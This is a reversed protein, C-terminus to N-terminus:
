PSTKFVPTGTLVPFPGTLARVSSGRLSIFITPVSPDTAGDFFASHPLEILDPTSNVNTADLLPIWTHGGDRSFVFGGPFVTAVRIQPDAIDFAVEELPCGHTFFATATGVPFSGTLNYPGRGPQSSGCNFRYEGGNTASQTLTPEVSWTSGCNRSVKINQAAEDVAYLENPDYPNVAFNWVSGLTAGPGNLLQFSSLLGTAPSTEGRELQGKSTMVFIVLVPVQSATGVPFCLSNGQVTGALIKAVTGAPFPQAALLSSSELSVWSGSSGMSPNVTANRVIVDQTANLAPGSEVSLYVASVPHQGPVSMVQTFDGTGPQEFEAKPPPTPTINLFTGSPGPPNAKVHFNDNRGIVVQTPLQPDIWAQGADGDLDKLPSWAAGGQTGIWADNDGTPVYLLPGPAGIGSAKVAAMGSVGAMINAEMAHLGSQAAVWRNVRSCPLGESGVNAFVGGDDSAFATCIGNSPDYDSPFAMAWTDVHIPDSCGTSTGGGLQQWTGGAGGAAAQFWWWICGDAAYVDYNVGPVEKPVPAGVRPTYVNAQGSGATNSVAAFNLNTTTGTNFDVITVERPKNDAPAHVVAVSSSVSSGQASPVVSLGLCLDPLTVPPEWSQGSTLSRRVTSGQCAFLGGQGPAAALIAQQGNFTTQPLKTWTAQELDKDTTSFIGCRTSVFPTGQSFVVSGITIENSTLTSTASCSLGCFAHEWTGASNDSVWLGGFPNGPRGDDDGTAYLLRSPNTDDLALATHNQTLGTKLGISSHFWSEGNNVSKWIGSSEGAAYLTSQLNASASINPDIALSLIRGGPDVGGPPNGYPFNPSVDTITFVLPRKITIEIFAPGGAQDTLTSLCQNSDGNDHSYYGNDGYDGPEDQYGVVPFTAKTGVPWETQNPALFTGIRQLAGIGGPAGPIQILAFYEDVFDPNIPNVINKWTRGSGGSQACGGAAFSVIDGPLFTIQPYGTSVALVNPYDIRWLQIETNPTFTDSLESVVEILAPTRNNADDSGPPAFGEFVVCRLHGNINQIQFTTSCSSANELQTNTPVGFYDPCTAELTTGVMKPGSCGGSTQYNGGPLVANARTSAIAIGFLIAMSLVACKGFFKLFSQGPFLGLKM